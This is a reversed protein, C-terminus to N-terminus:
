GNSKGSRSLERRAARIEAEIESGGLDNSGSLAAQRRSEAFLPDVPTISRLYDDASIMVVKDRGRKQIVVRTNNESVDDVLSSLNNRAEVLSLLKAM